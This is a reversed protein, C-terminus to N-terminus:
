SRHIFPHSLLFFSVRDWHEGVTCIGGAGHQASSILRGTDIEYFRSDHFSFINM